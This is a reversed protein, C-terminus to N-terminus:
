LPPIVGLFIGDFMRVVVPVDRTFVTVLVGM